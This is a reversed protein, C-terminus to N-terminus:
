LKSYYQKALSAEMFNKKIRSNIMKYIATYQICPSFWLNIITYEELTKAYRIQHMAKKHLLSVFSFQPSMMETKLLLLIPCDMCSLGRCMTLILLMNSTEKMAEINVHNLSIESIGYMFWRRYRVFISTKYIRHDIIHSANKKYNEFYIDSLWNSIM